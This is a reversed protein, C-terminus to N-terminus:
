YYLKISILIHISYVPVTIIVKIYVDKLYIIFEDAHKDTVAFILTKGAMEDTQDIYETLKEAIVRNFDNTIVRRNFQSVDFSMNEDLTETSITNKESDYVTVDEDIKFNIGNESLETKFIYPTDHDILWGDLVAQRYSYS